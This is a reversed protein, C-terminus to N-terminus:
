LTSAPNGLLQRFLLRYRLTKQYEQDLSQLPLLLLLYLYYLVLIEQRKDNSFLQVFFSNMREKSIKFAINKKSLIDAIYGLLHASDLIQLSEIRRVCFFLLIGLSHEYLSCLQLLSSMRMKKRNCETEMSVKFDDRLEMEKFNTLLRLLLNLKGEELLLRVVANDNDAHDWLTQTDGDDEDESENGNSQRTNTEDFAIESLRKLDYCMSKWDNDLPKHSHVSQSLKRIENTLKKLKRERSREFDPTEYNIEREAKYELFDPDSFSM